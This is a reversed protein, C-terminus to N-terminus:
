PQRLLTKRLTRELWSRYEDPTWGCGDVLRLYVSENLIAYLTNAADDATLDTTLAGQAALAAAVDRCDSRM